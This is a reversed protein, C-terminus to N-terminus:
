LPATDSIYYYWLVEAPDAGNRWHSTDGSPYDFRTFDPPQETKSTTYTGWSSGQSLRSGSGGVSVLHQELWGAAQQVTHMFLRAYFCM